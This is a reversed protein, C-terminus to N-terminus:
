RTGYWKGSNFDKFFIQRDEEDAITEGLQQSLKIYKQAEVKNGSLAQARAMAENAFAFDFDSLEDKHEDILELCRKAYYLAMPVNELVTYVQALMWAGRQLHVGTGAARWHAMSAHAYNVLIEDEERTRKKKDLMEWTKGNFQKAFHLHAEDETFRKEESM